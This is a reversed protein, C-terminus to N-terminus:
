KASRKNRAYIEAFQKAADEVSVTLPQGNPGSVEVKDSLLGNLKALREAARLAISQHESSPSVNGLLDIKQARANNDIMDRFFEDIQKKTEADSQKGEEWTEYVQRIYTQVQRGSIGWEQIGWAMIKAHSWCRVLLGEVAQLREPKRHKQKGDAKKGSFSNHPVIKDM